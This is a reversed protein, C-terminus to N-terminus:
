KELKKLIIETLNQLVENGPHSPKHAELPIGLGCANEIDLWKPIIPLIDIGLARCNAEMAPLCNRHTGSNKDYITPIMGLIVPKPELQCENVITYLWNNLGNLNQLSKDTPVLPVLIHTSAVVANECLKGLTAPCDILIVDYGTLNKQVYDSLLYECRRRIASIEHQVDSMTIDGWLVDLLDSKDRGIPLNSSEKSFINVAGLTPSTDPRGCYIELNAQPDLDILLVKKGSKALTFGLQSTVTTKASGGSGSLVSIVHM